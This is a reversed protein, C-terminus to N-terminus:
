SMEVENGGFNELLIIRCMKLTEFNVVASLIVEGDKRWEVIVPSQTSATAICTLTVNSAKLASTPQIGRTIM